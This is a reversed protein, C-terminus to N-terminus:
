RIEPTPMESEHKMIACEAKYIADALRKIADERQQIMVSNVVDRAAGLIESGDFGMKDPPIDGYVEPLNDPYIM